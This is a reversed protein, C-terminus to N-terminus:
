SHAGQCWYIQFLSKPPICGRLPCSAIALRIWSGRLSMGLGLSLKRNVNDKLCLTLCSHGTHAAGHAEAFRCEDTDLSSLATSLLIVHRPGRLAPPLVLLRGLLQTM